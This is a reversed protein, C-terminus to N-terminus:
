GCTPPCHSSSRTSRSAESAAEDLNALRTKAREPTLMHKHHNGWTELAGAATTQVWVVTGGAARLARALRNINPVIGRAAPIELPFARPSSTTRCISWSWRPARPTSPTTARCSARAACSATRSRPPFPTPICPARRQLPTPVAPQNTELRRIFMYTLHATTIIPNIAAPARGSAVAIASTMRMIPRAPQLPEPLVVSTM